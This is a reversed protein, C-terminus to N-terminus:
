FEKKLTPTVKLLSGCRLRQWLIARADLASDPLTLMNELCKSDPLVSAGEFRITYLPFLLEKNLQM